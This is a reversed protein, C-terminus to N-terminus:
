QLQLGLHLLEAPLSNIHCAVVLLQLVVLAVQSVQLVLVGHGDLSCM